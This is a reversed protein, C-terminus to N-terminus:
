EFIKFGYLTIRIAYAFRTVFICRILNYPCFYEVEVIETMKKPNWDLLSAEQLLMKIFIAIDAPM